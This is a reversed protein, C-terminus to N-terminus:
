QVQPGRTSTHWSYTNIQKIEVNNGLDVLLRGGATGVDFFFNEEPEDEDTPLAGDHLKELVGGNVDREGDVIKFKAKTASDTKSPSPVNEFSFAASANESRNHDVAIKIEAECTSCSLWLSLVGLLLVYRTKM